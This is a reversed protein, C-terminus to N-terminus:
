LRTWSANRFRLILVLVLYDYCLLAHVHFAPLVIEQKEQQIILKESQLLNLSNELQWLQLPPPIFIDLIVQRRREPKNLLILLRYCTQPIQAPFYWLTVTNVANTLKGM